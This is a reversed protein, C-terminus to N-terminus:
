MQRLLWVIFGVLWVTRASCLQYKLKIACNFFRLVSIEGVLNWKKTQKKVPRGGFFRGVHLGNSNAEYKVVFDSFV